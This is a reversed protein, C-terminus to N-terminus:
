KGNKGVEKFNEKIKNFNEKLNKIDKKVTEIIFSKAQKNDKVDDFYSVIDINLDGNNNQSCKEVLEILIEDGSLTFQQKAQEIIKSSM